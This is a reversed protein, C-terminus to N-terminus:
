QHKEQNSVILFTVFSILQQNLMAEMRCNLKEKGQMKLIDEADM